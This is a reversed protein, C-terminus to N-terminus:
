KHPKYLFKPSIVFSGDADYITINEGHGLTFVKNQAIKTNGIVVENNPLGNVFLIRKNEVILFSRETGLLASQIKCKKFIRKLSANKSKIGLKFKKPKSVQGNATKVYVDFNGSFEFKGPLGHILTSAPIGEQSPTTVLDIKQPIQELETNVVQARTPQMVLVPDVAQVSEPMPAPMPTPVEIIKIELVPMDEELWKAELEAIRRAHAQKKLLRKANYDDIISYIVPVFILTVLTSAILGGIISIGMPAMIETGEGIGLSIPIMAICTSTTTM